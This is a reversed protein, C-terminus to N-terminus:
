NIKTLHNSYHKTIFCVCWHIFKDVTIIDKLEIPETTSHNVLRGKGMACFEIVVNNGQEPYDWPMQMRIANTIINDEYNNPLIWTANGKMTALAFQFDVPKNKYLGNVQFSNRKLLKEEYNEPKKM